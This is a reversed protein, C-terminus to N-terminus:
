LCDTLAERLKKRATFVHWKVAEVSCNLIEAVQKQPLKEISFLVLAQRQMQPLEDMAAYIRRELDRAGAEELPTAVRPDGLARPSGGTEGSAEGDLPQTKRLARSRRRNLAANSLIRFFWSAFRQPDGLTGIRDFARLFADQTVEKADDVNNLLRYAIGTAQRQFRRVLEDFGGLDGQRVRQVLEVIDQHRAGNVKIDSKKSV